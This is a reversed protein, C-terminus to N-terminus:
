FRIVKNCFTMYFRLSTYKIVSYSTVIVDGIGPIQLSAVPRESIELAFLEDSAFSHNRKFTFCSIKCNLKWSLQSINKAWAQTLSGRSEELRCILGSREGSSDSWKRPWWSPLPHRPTTFHCQFGSLPWVPGSLKQILAKATACPSTVALRGVNVNALVCM